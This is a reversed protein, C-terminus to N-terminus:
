AEQAVYVRRRAAEREDIVVPELLVPPWYPDVKGFRLTRGDPIRVATLQEAASSHVKYMKGGFEFSGKWDSM